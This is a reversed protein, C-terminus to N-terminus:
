VQHGAGCEPCVGRLNVDLHDVTFGDPVALGLESPRSSPLDIDHVSGCERCYFHGHERLNACYRTSDRDRNVQRVLGCEVLKDLCNYVTALSITPMTKKVRSFVEDASPHDRRSMLSDYVTQRQRTMRFGSGALARDLSDQRHNKGAKV